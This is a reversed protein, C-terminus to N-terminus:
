LVDFNVPFDNPEIVVQFQSAGESSKQGYVFAQDWLWQLMDLGNQVVIALM